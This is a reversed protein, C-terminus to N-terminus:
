RGFWWWAVAAIAMAAVAIIGKPYLKPTSLLYLVSSPMRRFPSPTDSLMVSSGSRLAAADTEPPLHIFPKSAYARRPIEEDAPPDIPYQTWPELAAAVEIPEQYRDDLKKAMMKSIVNILEIPLDPRLTILPEPEKMQHGLLKHAFNDGPFPPRGALLFYMTAGLSYIDARIDVDSSQIAQEPALFDATGLIAKKDFTATIADGEGPACYRALGLDLIKVIGRRELLLNGPKIDRHILGATHLYQLGEAAQAIYHAAREASLPGHHHVLDHLNVGDIYEMVLYHFKGREEAADHARVINPHNLAAIARSERFFRQVLAPDATTEASVLKIAVRHGMTTHEALYVRSMGGVGLPELVRYRGIHFAKYRGKLIQHAQFKTLMGSRVLSVAVGMPDAPLEESKHRIFADLRDVAVL